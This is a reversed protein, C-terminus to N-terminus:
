FPICECELWKGNCDPCIRAEDEKRQRRANAEHRKRMQQREHQEQPLCGRAILDADISARAGTRYPESLMGAQAWLGRLKFVMFNRDTAARQADTRTDPRDPDYARPRFPKVTPLIM